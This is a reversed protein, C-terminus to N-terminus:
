RTHNRSVSRMGTRLPTVSSRISGRPWSRAKCRRPSRTASVISVRLSTSAVPISPAPSRRMGMNTRSLSGRAFQAWVDSGMSKPASVPRRTATMPPPEEAKSLAAVASSFPAACTSMKMWRGANATTFEYRASSDEPKQRLKPSMGSASRQRNM